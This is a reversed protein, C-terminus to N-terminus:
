HFWKLKLSLDKSYKCLQIKNKHKLMIVSMMCTASHSAIPFWLEVERERGFRYAVFIMLDHLITCFINNATRKKKKYTYSCFSKAEKVFYGSNHHNAYTGSTVIKKNTPNCKVKLFKLICRDRFIINSAPVNPWFTGYKWEKALIFELLSM